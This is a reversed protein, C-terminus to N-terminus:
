DVKAIPPLIDALRKAVYDETLKDAVTFLRLDIGNAACLELKMKDRKQVQELQAAGGLHSLPKYHQEGQYEIALRFAPVFIDLELGNLFAPRSHRLVEAPHFLASVIWHLILESGGTKGHLPFGLSRRLREEVFRQIQDKQRTLARRLDRMEELEPYLKDFETSRGYLVEWGLNYRSRFEAIQERVADPKIHVLKSLEPDLGDLLLDGYPSVGATYQSIHSYWGFHQVFLSHEDSNSWRVSPIRRNCMHCLGDRFLPLAEFEELTSAFLKNFRHADAPLVQGVVSQNANVRHTRFTNNISFFAACAARHCGCLHPQSEATEQFSIWTGYVQPYTVFRLPLNERFRFTDRVIDKYSSDKWDPRKPIRIVTQM